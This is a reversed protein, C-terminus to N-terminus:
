RNKLRAFREIVQQLDPDDGLEDRLQQRATALLQEPRQNAGNM